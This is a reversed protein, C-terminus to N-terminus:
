VNWFFFSFVTLFSFLFGIQLGTRYFILATRGDWRFRIGFPLLIM